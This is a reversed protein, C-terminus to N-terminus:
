PQEIALQPMQLGTLDDDLGIAIGALDAHVPHKVGPRPQARLPDNQRKIGFV